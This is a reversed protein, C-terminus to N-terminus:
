QLSIQGANSVTVSADRTGNTITVKGTTCPGGTFDAIIADPNPRKFTVTLNSTVTSVCLLGGTKITFIDQWKIVEIDSDGTNYRGDADVDAFIKIQSPNSMEFYVGYPVTFSGSEGRSGVGYVQAKRLALVIDESANAFLANSSYTRYNPLVIGTMIM